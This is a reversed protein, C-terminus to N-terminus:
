HDKFVWQYIGEHSIRMTTNFPYDIKLRGSIVDPSWSLALKKIVYDYLKKNSQKRKHRARTKRKAAKEVASEDFYTYYKPKNRKIERMIITHHRGLLRGISRYGEGSSHRYYIAKRESTSLHEYTM